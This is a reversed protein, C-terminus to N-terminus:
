KDSVDLKPRKPCVKYHDKDFRGNKEAVQGCQYCKNAAQRQQQQETSLSGNFSPKGGYKEQGTRGRGTYEAPAYRQKPPQQRRQVGYGWSGYGSDLRGSDKGAAAAFSVHKTAYKSGAAAAASSSSAKGPRLHQHERDFAPALDRVAAAFHEWSRWEGGEVPVALRSRLEDCCAELFWFILTIDDPPNPCHAVLEMFLNFFAATNPPLQQKFRNIQGRVTYDNRPVGFSGTHMIGDFMAWSLGEQQVSELSMNASSLCRDFHKEARSGPKLYSMGLIGWDAIDTKSGIFFRVLAPKYEKWPKKGDFPDKPAGAVKALQQSSSSSRIAPQSQLNLEARVAPNQLMQIILQQLALQAAQPGQEQEQAAAGLQENGLGLGQLGAAAANAADVEANPNVDQMENDPDENAAM